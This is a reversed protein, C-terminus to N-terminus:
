QNKLFYQITKILPQLYFKGTHNEKTILLKQSKKPFSPSNLIKKALSAKATVIVDDRIQSLNKLPFHSNTEKDITSEYAVFGCQVIIEPINHKSLWNSSAFSNLEWKSFKAIKSLSTGAVDVVTRVLSYFTRDKIFVYNISPNFSHYQLAESQVGGGLSWGYGIIDKAGLGNPDELLKLLAYYAKLILSKKPWGQSKGVGPYNFFLAGSRM